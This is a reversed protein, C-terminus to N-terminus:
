TLDPAAPLEKAKSKRPKPAKKDPLLQQIAMQIRNDNFVNAPPKREDPNVAVFPKGEFRDWIYRAWQSWEPHQPNSLIQALSARVNCEVFLEAAANRSLHKAWKPKRGGSNKPRPVRNRRRGDYKGAMPKPLIEPTVQTASM